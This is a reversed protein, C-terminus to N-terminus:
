LSAMQCPPSPLAGASTLSPSALRHLRLKAMQGGCFVKVAGGIRRERIRSVAAARPKTVCSGPFLTAQPARLEGGTICPWRQDCRCHPRTDLAFTQVCLCQDCAPSGYRRPTVWGGVTEEPDLKIIQLIRSKPPNTSRKHCNAKLMIDRVCIKCAKFM